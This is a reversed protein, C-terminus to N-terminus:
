VYLRRRGAGRYPHPCTQAYLERCRAGVVPAHLGLMRGLAPADCGAAPAQGNSGSLPREGPVSGPECKTVNMQSWPIKAWGNGVVGTSLPGDASGPMLATCTCYGRPMAEAGSSLLRRLRGRDTSASIGQPNRVFTERRCAPPSLATRDDSQRHCTGTLVEMTGECPNTSCRMMQISPAVNFYQSALRKTLRACQGCMSPTPWLGVSPRDALALM